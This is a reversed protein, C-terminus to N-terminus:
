VDKLEKELYAGYRVRKFEIFFGSLVHALCRNCFLLMMAVATYNEGSINFMLLFCSPLLLFPNLGSGGLRVM